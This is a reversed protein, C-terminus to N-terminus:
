DGNALIAVDIEAAFTKLLDPDAPRSANGKNVRHSVSVEFRDALVDYIADLLQEANLKNNALLGIRKGALSEPRKAMGATVISPTSTPDLVTLGTETTM